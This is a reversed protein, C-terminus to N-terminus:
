FYTTLQLYGVKRDDNDIGFGLGTHLGSKFEKGVLLDTEFHGLQTASGRRDLTMISATVDLDWGPTFAVALQNTALNSRWIGGYQHLLGATNFDAPNIHLSGESETRTVAVRRLFDDENM